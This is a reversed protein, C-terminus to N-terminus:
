EVGPKRRNGRNLFPGPPWIVGLRHRPGRVMRAFKGDLLAGSVELTFSRSTKKGRFFRILCIATAREVQVHEVLAQFFGFHLSVIEHVERELSIEDMREVPDKIM